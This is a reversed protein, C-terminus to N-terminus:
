RPQLTRQDVSLLLLVRGNKVPRAERCGPESLTSAPRCIIASSDTFQSGKCGRTRGGARNAARVGERCSTSM